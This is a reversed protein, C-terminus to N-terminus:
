SPVIVSNRRGFLKSHELFPIPSSLSFRSSNNSKGLREAVKYVLIDDM